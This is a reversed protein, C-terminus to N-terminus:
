RLLVVPASLVRSASVLRLSYRGGALSSPLAIGRGAAPNNFVAVLRGSADTLELWAGTLWEAPVDLQLADTAPVPNVRLQERVDAETRGLPSAEALWRMVMVEPGNDGLYSGVAIVREQADLALSAVNCGTGPCPIQVRGSTGFTQDLGGEPLVRMVIISSTNDVDLADVTVLAKGNPLLVMDRVAGHYGSGLPLFYRGDTGYTADWTGDQSVRGTFIEESGGAGPLYRKGAILIRGAGADATSVASSTSFEESPRFLGDTGFGPDLTGSGTLQLMAMDADPLTLRWAGALVFSGDTRLLMDQVVEGTHLGTTFIGGTAFDPDLAGDSTLRMAMMDSVIGDFNGGALIRGDPQLALAVVADSAGPAMYTFVGDGSFSPDIDGASTFRAFAVDDFAGGAFEASGAVVISGDTQMAIARGEANVGINVTAVGNGSFSNDLSGTELFRLVAMEEETGGRKGAVLIRGDPQLTVAEGHDGGFGSLGLLVVGNDGFTPDLLTLQANTGITFASSLALFLDRRTM